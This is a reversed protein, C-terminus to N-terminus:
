CDACPISTSIRPRLYYTKKMAITNFASTLGLTSSQSADWTLISKYGLSSEVRILFTNPVNLAAPVTTPTGASVDRSYTKDVMKRSWAVKVTSNPNGTIEIATVVVTPNSRSYPQLISQGIEFIADLESKRIDPQQTILDAVMSGIRGVKKNTDIGQAAEVTMFYMGLLLPAIM